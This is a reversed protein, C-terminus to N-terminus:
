EDCSVVQMAMDKKKGDTGAVTFVFEGEISPKFTFAEGPLVFDQVTLWTGDPYRIGRIVFSKESALTLTEGLKFSHPVGTTLYVSRAVRQQQLSNGCRSVMRSDGMREFTAMFKGKSRNEIATFAALSLDMDRGQVYPGRDNIRVIVSKGNSVNTVKVLTNVPFSRHAATLANMDFAEGFATGKGHFKEAYLSVEHEEEKLQTDLLYQLSSLEDDTIVPNDTPDEPLQAVPYRLLLGTMTAMSVEDPSDTVNRTRFLWVLADNLRLQEDPYFKNEDDDIIGRSAAFDIELSGRDPEPVDDFRTKAPEAPRRISQWLSLFGDRRTIPEAASASVPLAILLAIVVLFRKM